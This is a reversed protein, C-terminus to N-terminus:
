TVSARENAVQREAHSWILVKGKNDYKKRMDNFFHYWEKLVWIWIINNQGATALLRGCHSFKMSWVAGQHVFILQEKKFSFSTHLHAATHRLKLFLWYVTYVTLTECSPM